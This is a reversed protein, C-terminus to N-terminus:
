SPDFEVAWGIQDGRMRQARVLRGTHVQKTGQDEIEVSVRLEGPSFFLVGSESVNETRGALDRTDVVLRIAARNARRAAGRRDDTGLFADHPSGFNQEDHM